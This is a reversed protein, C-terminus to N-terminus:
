AKEQLELIEYNLFSLTNLLEEVLDQKQKLIKVRSNEEIPKMIALLEEQIEEKEAIDKKLDEIRSKIMKERVIKNKIERTHALREKKAENEQKLVDLKKKLEEVMKTQTSAIRM